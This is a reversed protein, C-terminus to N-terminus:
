IDWINCMNFYVSRYMKNFYHLIIQADLIKCMESEVLQFFYVGIYKILINQDYIRIEM